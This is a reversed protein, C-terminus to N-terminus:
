LRGVCNYGNSLLLLKRDIAADSLGTCVPCASNMTRHGVVDASRQPDTATSRQIRGNGLCDPAVTRTRGAHAERRLSGSIGGSMNSDVTQHM